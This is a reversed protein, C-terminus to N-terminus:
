IRTLTTQGTVGFLRLGGEDKDGEINNEGARREESPGGGRGSIGLTVAM